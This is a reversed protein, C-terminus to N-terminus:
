TEAGRKVMLNGHADVSVWWGPPVVTTAGNEEIIAPGKLEEEGPLLAREYVPTDWFKGQFFARREEKRAGEASTQGGEYPPLLPKPVRGFASLRLNVLEVPHEPRHHGYAEQFRQHFREEVKQPGDDHGLPIMLEFAQGKYRLDLSRQFFIEPADFGEKKLSALSDKELTLFEQELSEWDLGNWTRM